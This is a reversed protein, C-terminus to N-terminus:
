LAAANRQGLIGICDVVVRQSGELKKQDRSTPEIITRLGVDCDDIAQGFAGSEERCRNAPISSCRLNVLRYSWREGRTRRRWLNRRSPSSFIDVVITNRCDPDGLLKRPNRANIGSFLIM